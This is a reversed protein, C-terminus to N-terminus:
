GDWRVRYGAASVEASRRGGGDGSGGRSVRQAGRRGHDRALGFADLRGGSVSQPIATRAPPRRSELGPAASFTARIEKVVHAKELKAEGVAPFFEALERVALAIVDARPMEVLSRSASVVLQVYRGESKNFMWQITRDLLTAHPLDLSRVTSGCTFAPSRRTSSVRRRRCDLGAARSASSRCRASTTIPAFSRAARGDRSRVAGQEANFRKSRRGCACSSLERDEGM